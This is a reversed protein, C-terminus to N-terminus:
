YKMALQRKPATRCVSHRWCTGFLFSFCQLYRMGGGGGAMGGSSTKTYSYTNYGDTYPQYGNPGGHVLETQAYQYTGVGSLDAKSGARRNMNLGNQSGYYSM